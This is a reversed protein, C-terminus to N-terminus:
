MASLWLNEEETKTLHYEGVRNGNVDWVPGACECERIRSIVGLLSEHLDAPSQMAANGMRVTLQLRVIM